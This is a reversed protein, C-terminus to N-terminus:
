ARYLVRGPSVRGEIRSWVRLCALVDGPRGGAHTPVDDGTTQDRVDRYGLLLTVVEADIDRERLQAARREVLQRSRMGLRVWWSRQAAPPRHTVSNLAEDLNVLARLASPSGPEARAYERLRGLLDARLKAHLGADIPRSGHFLVSQLCVVLHPDLRAMALVLTVLEALEKADPDADLDIAALASAVEPEVPAQSSMRVGRCAFAAPPILVEPQGPLDSWEPRFKEGDGTSACPISRVARDAWRERLREPLRLLAFHFSEWGITDGAAPDPRGWPGLVAKVASDAGFATM